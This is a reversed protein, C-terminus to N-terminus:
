GAKVESKVKDEATGRALGKMWGFLMLLSPILQVVVLLACLGLFALVLIGSHYTKATDVAYVPLASALVALTTLFTRTGNM